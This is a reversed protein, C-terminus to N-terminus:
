LAENKDTWAEDDGEKEQGFLKGIAEGTSQNENTSQEGPLPFLESETVGLAIALRRLTDYKPKAKGYELKQYHQETIGVKKALKAQTMGDIRRRYAKLNNATM